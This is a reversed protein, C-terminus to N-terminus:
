SWSAVGFMTRWDIYKIFIIYKNMYYFELNVWMVSILSLDLIVFAFEPFDSNSCLKLRYNTNWNAFKYHSVKGFFGFLIILHCSNQSSVRLNPIRSRRWILKKGNGWKWFKEKWNQREKKWEWSWAALSRRNRIRNHRIIFLVGVNRPDILLLVLILDLRISIAYMTDHTCALM